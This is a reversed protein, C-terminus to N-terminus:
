LVLAVSVIRLQEGCLVTVDASGCDCLLILDEVDFELGCSACKALGAPEDIDLCAGDIATGQAALEFCFRLADPQVGCLRGVELRVERVPSTGIRSTIADVVSEAISLEHM